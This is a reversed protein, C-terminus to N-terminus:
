ITNIKLLSLLELESLAFQAMVQGEHYDAAKFQKLSEKLVIRAAKVNGLTSHIQGVHLLLSGEQQTKSFHRLYELATEAYELAEYSQSNRYLLYLYTVLYDAWIDIVAEGKANLYELVEAYLSIGDVFFGSCDYYYRLTSEANSLFENLEYHVASEVAYRINPMDLELQGIVRARHKEQLMSQEMERLLDAFFDLYRRMLTMHMSKDLLVKELLSQRILRFLRFRKNPLAELLSKDQLRLLMEASCDAVALAAAYSCSDQFVALSKLTRQEDEEL